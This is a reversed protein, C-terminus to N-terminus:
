SYGQTDIHEVAHEGGSSCPKSCGESGKALDFKFVLAIGFIESLELFSTFALGTFVESSGIEMHDLVLVGEAM